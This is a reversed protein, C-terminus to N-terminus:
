KAGLLCGRLAEALDRLLAEYAGPGPALEFGLPDLVALRAGTGSIVPALLAPSVRPEVFLCRAGARAIEKRLAATRRAGPRQDPSAILAGLPALGYRAEFYQFADHYVAYAMGAVPALRAAIERDLAVLRADLAAANRAYTAARGPDVRALAAAMARAIVRANTPDLWVHPDIEGSDGSDGSDVSGPAPSLRDGATAPQTKRWAGPKRARLRRLGDLGILAIAREPKMLSSLTKELFPEGSKGIWFILDARAIRRAESPRLAYSHPSAGPPVIVGPAAVGAMVGAALSQLPLISAEVRPPPAARAPSAFGGAVLVLALALLGGLRIRPAARPAAPGRPLSFRFM